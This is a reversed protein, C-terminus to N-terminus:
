KERSGTGVIPLKGIYIVEGQEWSLIPDRTISLPNVKRKHPRPPLTTSPLYIAKMEHRTLPPTTTPPLGCTDHWRYNHYTAWLAWSLVPSRIDPPPRSRRTRMCDLQYPQLLHYDPPLKDDTPTTAPKEDPTNPELTPIKILSWISTVM